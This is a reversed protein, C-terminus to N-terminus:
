KFYYTLQNCSPVQPKQLLPGLNSLSWGQSLRLMVDRFDISDKMVGPIRSQLVVNTFVEMAVLSSKSVFNSTHPLSDQRKSDKTMDCENM